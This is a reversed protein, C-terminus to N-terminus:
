GEIVNVRSGPEPRRRSITRSRPRSRLFTRDRRRARRRRSTGRPRAPRRDGQRRSAVRCGKRSATAPVRRRPRRAGPLASRARHVEALRPSCRACRPRRRRDRSTSRCRCGCGSARFARPASRTSCSRRRAPRARTTPACRVSRRRSRVARRPRSCPCRSATRCWRPCAASPSAGRRRRAPPAVEVIEARRGRALAVVARSRARRRRRARRPGRRVPARPWDIVRIGGEVFRATPRTQQLDLLDTLDLTASRRGRRRAARAPRTVAGEGAVGPTSGARSRSSWSRDTSHPGTTSTSCSAWAVRASAAAAGAVRRLRGRACRPLHM